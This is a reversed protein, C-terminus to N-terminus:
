VHREVEERLLCGQLQRRAPSRRPLAASSSRTPWWANSPVPGSRGPLSPTAALGVWSSRNPGTNGPFVGAPLVGIGFLASVIPLVPHRHHQSAAWVAVLLEGIVIMTVDIITAVLQTVGPHPPRTGGLDIIEERTLWRWWAPYKTEATVIGMLLAFDAAAYLVGAVVRRHASPIRAAAAFANEYSSLGDDAADIVLTPAEIGELPMEQAAPTSVYTDFLAGKKRSAAPFPSLAVSDLAEQEGETPRFGKPMGLMRAFAAPSGQKSAWLFLDSGYMLEAPLQPPKDAPGPFASALLLLNATRDPHRLAFRTAPPGGASCGFCAARDVGSADLLRM